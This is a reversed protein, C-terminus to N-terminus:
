PTTNKMLLSERSTKKVQAISPSQALHQVHVAPLDGDIGVLV